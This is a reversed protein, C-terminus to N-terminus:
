KTNSPFFIKPKMQELFIESDTISKDVKGEWELM